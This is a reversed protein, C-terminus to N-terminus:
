PDREVREIREITSTFHWFYDILLTDSPFTWFGREGVGCVTISRLPRTDKVDVFLAGPGPRREVTRADLDLVHISDRTHVHWLGTEAGSLRTVTTDTRVFAEVELSEVNLVAQSLTTPDNSALLVVRAQFADDGDGYAVTEDIHRHFHGGVYLSPRVQLFGQTFQKRGAASYTLMEPPWYRDTTALAADLSPLPTPADHGVMIEARENGLATLDDDSIQEQPWWTLGEARHHRDISNAGGLVALTRGFNLSTRHGRPLHIINPRLRRLGDPSLPFKAYLRSFDEHNGDLWFLIQGREALRKSIKDLENDWNHGPWIFGFDGLVLLVSVGRAWMTRAVILVHEMDGHTDGILGILRATSLARPAEAATM